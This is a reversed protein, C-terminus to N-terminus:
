AEEKGDFGSWIPSDFCTEKTLSHSQFLDHVRAVEASVEKKTANNELWNVSEKALSTPLNWVFWRYLVNLQSRTPKNDDDIM